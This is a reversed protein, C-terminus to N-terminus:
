VEPATKALQEVDALFSRWGLAPYTETSAGSMSRILLAVQSAVEASPAEFVDILDYPGLVAYSELWQVGPFQDRVRPVISKAMLTFDHPSKLSEASLRTLMVFRPM